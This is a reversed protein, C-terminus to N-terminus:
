SVGLELANFHEKALDDPNNLEFAHNWTDSPSMSVIGPEGYSSLGGVHQMVVPTLVWRLTGTTAAHDEIFTDTPTQAWRAGEFATLLPDVVSSPFVLGQGCCINDAIVHLGHPQPAVCNGGAVIALVILLPVYVGVTLLATWRTVFRPGGPVFRQLIILVSIVACEVFFVTRAYKRWYDANFGRLGEYYFLRLYLWDENAKKSKEEVGGLAKLTRHYWGDLFVVDDESMLIYPAGTRKCEDLVFSYDFKSKIWHSVGKAEMDEAVAKRAPDQDYSPLKDVMNALWAQGHDPHKKQDVHALLAVFYLSEREAPSLGQQMSGLTAKLYSTGNRSVSAVGVCLKPQGSALNPTAEQASWTDAFQVGQKVRYTSYAPTHARDQRYFKSTPDRWCTSRAYSFLLLYLVSFGISLALAPHMRM